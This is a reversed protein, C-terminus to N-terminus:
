MNRHATLRTVTKVREASNHEAVCADAIPPGCMEAILMNSAHFVIGATSPKAHDTFVKVSEHQRRHSEVFEKGQVQAPVSSLLPKLYNQTSDLFEFSSKIVKPRCICEHHGTRSQIVFLNSGLSRPM